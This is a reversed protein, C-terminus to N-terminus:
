KPALLFPQAPQPIVTLSDVTLKVMDGFNAAPIWTGTIKVWDDVKLGDPERGLLVIFAPSADAACCTMVYRYLMLKLEARDVGPPVQDIEEQTPIMLRGIVEVRRVDPYNNPFYLDTLSLPVPVPLAPDIAPRLDAVPEPPTPGDILTTTINTRSDTTTETTPANQENPEDASPIPSSNDTPTEAGLLAKLSDAANGSAYRSNLVSHPVAHALSTLSHSGLTTVGMTLFLFLPLLHVVTQLWRDTNTGHDHDHHEHSHHDHHEHAAARNVLADILVLLAFLATAAIFVWKQFPAIYAAYNGGALMVGLFAMWGISQVLRSHNM